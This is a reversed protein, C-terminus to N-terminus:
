LVVMLTYKTFIHYDLYYEALFLVFTSSLKVRMWKQKPVISKNKVVPRVAMVM